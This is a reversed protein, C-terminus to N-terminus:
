IETTYPLWSLFTHRWLSLLVCRIDDNVDSHCLCYPPMFLLMAAPIRWMESHCRCYLPMFLLMAVPFVCRIMNHIIYKPQIPSGPCFLTACQIRQCTLKYSHDAHNFSSTKKLVGQLIDGFWLFLNIYAIIMSINDAPLSLLRYFQFTSVQSLLRVHPSRYDETEEAEARVMSPIYDTEFILIMWVNM